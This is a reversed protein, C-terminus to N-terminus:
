RCDDRVKEGEEGNRASSREYVCLRDSQGNFILTVAGITRRLNTHFTGHTTGLLRTLIRPEYNSPDSDHSTSSITFQLVSLPLSRM